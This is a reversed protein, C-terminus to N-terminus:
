LQPTKQMLQNHKLSLLLTKLMLFDIERPALAQNKNL